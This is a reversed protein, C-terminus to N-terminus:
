TQLVQVRDPRQRPLWGGAFLALWVLVPQFALRPGHYWWSTPLFGIEIGNLAHTVNAPWVALAYLALMLGAARRLRPVQLGVAGSLEALGTFLVVAEPWPVVAPIIKIFPEPWALHAFGAAGYLLSLGLRAISGQACFHTGTKHTRM